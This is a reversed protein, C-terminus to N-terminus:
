ALIKSCLTPIKSLVYTYWRKALKKKNTKETPDIDHAL